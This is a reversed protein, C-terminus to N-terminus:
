NKSDYQIYGYVPMSTKLEDRIVEFLELDEASRNKKHIMWLKREPPPNDMRCIRYGKSDALSVALSAPLITWEGDLIQLRELLGFSRMRIRPRAGPFTRDHWEQFSDTFSHCIECEQPLDAIAVIDESYGCGLGTHVVLFEEKLILHTSHNESHPLSNTFGIDALRMEILDHIEWSQHMSISISVQPHDTMFRRLFVSWSSFGFSEVSVISLERFNSFRKLNQAQDFLEWMKKAIPLFRKGAESLSIRAYGKHRIILPIGLEAELQSLRRSVTSQTMFLASAANSISQGHVINLFIEIDDLSM